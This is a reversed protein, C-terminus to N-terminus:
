SPQWAVSFVRFNLNRSDNPTPAGGGRAGLRLVQLTTRRIQMPIRLTQRGDIVREGAVSGDASFVRLDLPSNGLGPGPEVDLILDGTDRTPSTLVIEADQNVWRFTAGDFVEFPYWGNGLFVGDPPPTHDRQLTEISAAPGIDPVGNLQLLLDADYDNASSGFLRFGLVRPDNGPHRSADADTHLRLVSTQGVPVPVTLQIRKRGSLQVRAIPAADKELVTLTTPLTEIAPGPEVDLSLNVEPLNPEYVVLEADSGAWRFQEAGVAEPVNWGNGFLVSGPMLPADPNLAELAIQDFPADALGIRSVRYNLVRDDTPILNPGVVGSRFIVRREGSALLQLDLANCTLGTIPYRGLERDDEGYASLVFPRGGISPGPEACFRLYRPGAGDRRDVTVAFTDELYNGRWLFPFRAYPSPPPEVEPEEIRTYVRVIDRPAPVLQFRGSEWVPTGAPEYPTIVTPDGKMQLWLDANNPETITSLDHSSLIERVIAGSDYRNIDVFTHSLLTPPISALEAYAGPDRNYAKSEVDDILIGISSVNSAVAACSVIAISGRLIWSSSRSWLAALAVVLGSTLVFQNTYLFKYVYYPDTVVVELVVLSGLWALLYVIAFGSINRLGRIWAWITAISLALVVAGLGAVIWQNATMQAMTVGRGTPPWVGWYLFPAVWSDISGWSRYGEVARARLGRFALWGALSVGIGLVTLLTAAAIIGVRRRAAWRTRVWNFGRRYGDRSMVINRHIAYAAVPGLLFPLPGAYTWLLCYLYVVVLILWPGRRWGEAWRLLVLFLVPAIAGYILSGEHENFYTTLYFANGTAAAAAVFAAPVSARFYARVLWYVGHAMMFLNLLAQILFADIGTPAGLVISWFAM